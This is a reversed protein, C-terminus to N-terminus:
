DFKTLSGSGGDRPYKDSSTPTVISNASYYGLAPMSFSLKMKVTLIYRFKPSLLTENIQNWQSINSIEFM